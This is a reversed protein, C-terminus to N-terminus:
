DINKQRNTYILTEDLDLFLFKKTSEKIEKLNVRRKLVTDIQPGKLSKTAYKIGRYLNVIFEKMILQSVDSHILKEYKLIKQVKKMVSPVVTKPKISNKASNNFNQNEKILHWKQEFHESFQSNNIEDFPLTFQPSKARSITSAM